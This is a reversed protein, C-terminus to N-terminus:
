DEGDITIKVKECGIGLGLLLETMESDSDIIILKYRNRENPFDINETSKIKITLALTSNLSVNIYWGPEIEGDVLEGILYFENRNKIAFSDVVDFNGQVQKTEM